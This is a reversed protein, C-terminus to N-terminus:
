SNETFFRTTVNSDLFPQPFIEPLSLLIRSALSEILTMGQLKAEKILELLFIEYCLFGWRTSEKENFGSKQFLIQIEDTLARIREDDTTGVAAPNTSISLENILQSAVPEDAFVPENTENLDEPSSSVETKRDKGPGEKSQHVAVLDQPVYDASTQIPMQLTRSPRGAQFLIRESEQLTKCLQPLEKGEEGGGRSGGEAISAMTFAFTPQFQESTIDRIANYIKHRLLIVRCFDEEGEGEGEHTPDAEEQQLMEVRFLLVHMDWGDTVRGLPESLLLCYRKDGLYNLFATQKCWCPPPFAKNLEKLLQARGLSADKYAVLGEGTYGVVIGDDDDSQAVVHGEFMFPTDEVGGSITWTCDRVNYTYLVEHRRVFIHPGLVSAYLDLIPWSCYLGRPDPLAEWSNEIPDYREFPICVEGRYCHHQGSFVYVKGDVIAVQPCPKPSNMSSIEQIRHRHPDYLFMRDTLRKFLSPDSLSCDSELREGENLVEGGLLYLNSNYAFAGMGVPLDKDPFHLLTEIPSKSRDEEEEEDEELLLQTLNIRCLDERLVIYLYLYEEGEDKTNKGDEERRKEELM